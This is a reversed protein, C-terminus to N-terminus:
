GVTPEGSETTTTEQVALRNRVILYLVAGLLGVFLSGSWLWSGGWRELVIGGLPAGIMMACSFCVSFVGMYRARLNAPALDSVIAPMLPAHMMEGFTWLVITLAFHWVMVAQGTLGFGVAVAVASMAIMTGRHFRSVVATIPLQFVVILLGNLAILRGYTSPGFGKESLYLPFTSFAQVYATAVCFTAMWCAIFTWNTLIHAAAERMSVPKSADDADVGDGSAGNTDPSNPRQTPLTERITLLILFGFAFATLADGWFLWQFSYEALVGGVSTAVVFGLNIAVYMLGFAHTRQEPDTVDAIMASAAPRYMESVFAFAALAVMIAWRSELHGFVLLMAAAGFLSILMVIRRGLQDALQGGIIYALLAGMGFMGMARTAFGVGLDLQDQLYLTLFPVLFTGARNILAGVCLIHVTRSLKLYQSFM